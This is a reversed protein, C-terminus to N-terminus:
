PKLSYPPAPPASPIDSIRYAENRRGNEPRRMQDVGAPTPPAYQFYDLSAPSQVTTTTPASSSDWVRTSSWEGPSAPGFGVDVAQPATPTEVSIAIPLPINIEPPSMSKEPPYGYNESSQQPHIPRLARGHGGNPPRIQESSSSSQGAYMAPNSTHPHYSGNMNPHRYPPGLHPDSRSPHPHPRPHLSSTNTPFPRPGSSSNGQGSHYRLHHPQDSYHNPQELHQQPVSPLPKDSSDNHSHMLISGAFSRNRFAPYIERQNTPQPVTENRRPLTNFGNLPHQLLQPPSPPPPRSVPPQLPPPPPPPGHRLVTEPSTMHRQPQSEYRAIAMATEPSSMQRPRTSMVQRSQPDFAGATTTPLSEPLSPSQTLPLPRQQENGVQHDSVTGIIIPIEVQFGGPALLIRNRLKNNVKKPSRTELFPVKFRMDFLLVLQYQITIIKTTNMTPLADEPITMSVMIKGTHTRSEIRLAESTVAIKTSYEKTNEGALFSDKRLLQIWCGPNRSIKKPHNLDIEIPVTQGNLFASRELRVTAKATKKGTPDPEDTATSTGSITIPNSYPPIQINILDKITIQKETKLEQVAGLFGPSTIAAVMFYKVSGHRYKGTSPIHLSPVTFTFDWFHTGEKITAEVTNNTHGQLVIQQNFIYAVDEAKAVKTSVLGIFNIRVSTYKITSSTVFKVQGGINDGPFFFGTRQREEDTFLLTLKKM